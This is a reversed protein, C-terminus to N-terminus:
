YRSYSREKNRKRKRAKKKQKNKKSILRKIFFEDSCPVHSMIGHKYSDKYTKVLSYFVKKNMLICWVFHKYKRKRNVEETKYNSKENEADDRKPVWYCTVWGGTFLDVRGRLFIGTKWATAGQCKNKVEHQTILFCLM